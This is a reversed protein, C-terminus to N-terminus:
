RVYGLGRLKRATEESMEPPPTAPQQFTAPASGLVSALARVELPPPARPAALNRTEGPDAALDYAEHVGNSAEIWKFRADRIGRLSRDWPSPDLRLRSRISDLVHQPRDYALQISSRGHGDLLPGGGAPGPAAGALALLAEPVDRLSALTPTEGPEIGPAHVLLPVHVLTDWLGLQHDLPRHEGVNEGHDATVLVVTRDLRGARRLRDLVRGVLHDAYAVEAAYLLRLGELERPTRRRGPDLDALRDQDISALARVDWGATELAGCAGRPPSYPLHAEMLNLFVFGPGPGGRFFRLAESALVLGDKDDWVSTIAFPRDLDPMLALLWPRPPRHELDGVVFRDFGRHFGFEPTIWPNASFGATRWGARAFREALTGPEPSLYPRAWGAGHEAAELGTFLSAHAPVTWCSTSFVGTHRRGERALRALAPTPFPSALPAPVADARTTDLVILLVDLPGSAREPVSPFPLRGLAIALVAAVGGIWALGTGSARVGTATRSARSLRSTVVAAALTIGAFGTWVVLGRRSAPPVGAVRLAAYPWAIVIALVAPELAATTWPEVSPPLARRQVGAAVAAAVALAGSLAGMLSPALAGPDIRPPLGHALVLACGLGVAVADGLAVSARGFRAPDGPGLRSWTKAGIWAMGLVLLACVGAAPAVYPRDPGPSTAVVLVLDAISIAAAPSLVSARAM